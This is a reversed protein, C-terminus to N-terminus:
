QLLLYSFKRGLVEYKRILKGQLAISYLIFGYRQGYGPGLNLLEMPVPKSINAFKTSQSLVEQLPLYEKIAIKGYAKPPEIKPMDPLALNPLKGLLVLKQYLKRVLHYKETYTHAEGLPATYDYSTTIRQTTDGVAGNLFGFNTGGIFPYFNVSGNHKIIIDEAM